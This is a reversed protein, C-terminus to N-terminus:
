DNSIGKLRKEGTNGVERLVAAHGHKRLSAQFAEETSPAPAPATHPDDQGFFKVEFIRLCEGCKWAFNTEENPYLDEGACYPCHTPFNRNPNPARRVSM